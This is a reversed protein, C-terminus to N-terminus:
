LIHLIFRDVPTHYAAAIFLSILLSSHWEINLSFLQLWLFFYFHEWKHVRLSLTQMFIILEQDTFAAGDDKFPTQRRVNWPFPM